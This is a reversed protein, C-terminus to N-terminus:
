LIIKKLVSFIAGLSIFTILAYPFIELYQKIYFNYYYKIFKQKNLSLRAITYDIDDHNTQDSMLSTNYEYLLSKYRAVDTGGLELELELERSIKNIKIASTTIKEYKVEVKSSSIAISLALIAISCFVSFVWNPMTVNFFLLPSIEELMFIKEGISILILSFSIASISFLSWWSKRSLRKSQNFRAYAVIKTDKKFSEFLRQIM